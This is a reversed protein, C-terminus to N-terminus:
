KCECTAENGSWNGDNLCTRKSDGKLVYGSKCRIRSEGNISNDSSVVYGNVPATLMPCTVIECQNNQYPRFGPKCVCDSVGIAPDRLTIHNPDPCQKCM